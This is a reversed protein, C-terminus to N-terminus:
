KAFLTEYLSLHINIDILTNIYKYALIFYSHEHFTGKLFFTMCKVKHFQYFFYNRIVIRFKSEEM